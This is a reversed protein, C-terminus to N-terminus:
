EAVNGRQYQFQQSRVITEVAASFRYDHSQLQTMMEDLVTEDSLQVGRALSYGLLKRCFHRLFANRRAHLLYDKLGTEGAFKTGDKLQVNVEIARGGLDKDRRRGIADYSELSFGFADIREHCHACSEISRHAEVLQRVTLNTDTETEPLPPVNKPPRPLKEGLLTELVWNGRLIPSTRSAGSQQALTTALTLIGGRGYQKVNDVRRWEPGTVGPIGYHAALSENLFTHDADLIELVSGDREFLDQFFRISEEYMDGRLATFTPFVQESKEGHNDFDRVGLWQCAFETALMRVRDDKLMRKSQTVLVNPDHLRGASALQRLEDDPMTSWLFYSLRSALAWDSIATASAPASGTAAVSLPEVRYLFAPSILVRAITFRIAEDHPLEQERLRSYLHRLEQGEESRLPRRYAREAFRIVSELQRPEADLLAQKFQDARDHIPKRLPEFVKPDADQTAFEMLQNFGDVLTLADRSVFHLENWRQNLRAAQEDSLMLRSLQNDERYFITLTVVEDVPVIRSYCLAAPFLNRYTEFASEVRRSAASGESVLIPTSYSLSRKNDTWTSNANTEKVTAAVLGQDGEPKTTLVQLQVTGEAGTERHLAGTAVLEWGSVLDAPLKVEIVSPAKVCLSAPDVAQGNPHKGFLVPDLGWNSIPQATEKSKTTATVPIVSRFLPGGLSTLQRYLQADPSEKEAPSPGSLLTQVAIALKQQEEVSKTAQWQTLLSNAPIVPGLSAGTVSETYFHWVDKNGFRDAHPNAAHIDPSVDRSLDWVRGEAGAATLTLDVATSDCSHNGDRPGILLSVIDGPHVILNEIPPVVVPTAGHAIGTALRQRHAGRRVEVSWTVGNGCEPHAHQVKADVRLTADVPSQWGVVANLTPSPHVVVGHPKMNGPIRVHQDSSNAVILPTADSGWGRVFDYGGVNSMKSTFHNEIKAPGGIAVGLYDLWATLVEAKLGRKKALEVPDIKTESAAAEAAVNLYSAASNLTQKRRELLESTYTRVDRLLLDPRGPAVLRPQEWVVFDNENGDGADTTLLYVSVDAGPAPEALKQRIEFRSTMPSVPEMWAKPGNLKGIHGVSTFRWLAQQWRAIDTALAVADEPKATRWRTRLGDLLFSPEKGTLAKWLLGLYKPSLKHEQALTEISKKGTSIAERERLTVELYRDLPLRGGGNTDFIIGQLNVQTGGRDDTYLAYLGRIDALLEEIWDRQMVSPSFRFGDPLLVAHNAIEKAADLYKTVLAPSMVLANGLNTFGEGAASDVPFEKAPALTPVGTLSRITNTYEVNNLRRLVVRGPDGARSRAEAKLYSRVWQQLTTREGETPQPADKPPMQGSELMENVKQWVDPHKRIDALSKFMSLDIDAEMVENSHCKECTRLIIPRVDSVFTKEFTQFEVADAAVLTRSFSTVGVVLLVLRGISRM